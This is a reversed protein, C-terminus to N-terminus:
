IHFAGCEIWFVFLRGRMRALARTCWWGVSCLACLVQFMCPRFYVCWSDLYVRWPTWLAMQGVCGTMTNSGFDICLRMICPSAIRRGHRSAIRAIGRGDLKHVQGRVCCDHSGALQSGAVGRVIGVCIHACVGALVQVSIHATVALCVCHVVRVSLRLQTSQM